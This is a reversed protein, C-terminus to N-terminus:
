FGRAKVFQETSLSAADASGEDGMPVNKVNGEADIIVATRKLEEYRTQREAVAECAVLVEDSEFDYDQELEPASLIQKQAEEEQRIKEKAALHQKQLRLAWALDDRWLTLESPWMHVATQFSRVAQLTCIQCNLTFIAKVPCSRCECDLLQIPFGSHHTSSLYSFEFQSHHTVYM